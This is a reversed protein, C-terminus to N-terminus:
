NVSGSPVVVGPTMECILLTALEDFLLELLEPEFLELEFLEPELELLEVIV